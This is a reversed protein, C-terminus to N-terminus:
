PRAGPPGLISDGLEAMIKGALQMDHAQMPEQHDTGAPIGVSRILGAFGSPSAIALAKFPKSASSNVIAHPVNKPIFYSEGGSLQHQEGPIYITVEGELVIITETYNAHVHLPSQAAPPFVGEILDYHAQTDQESKIIRQKSGFLWYSSTMM